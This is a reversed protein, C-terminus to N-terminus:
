GIEGFFPCVCKFHIYISYYLLSIFSCLSCFSDFVSSVTGWNESPFLTSSFDKLSNFPSVLCVKMSSPLLVTTYLTTLSINWYKTYVLTKTQLKLGILLTHASFETTLSSDSVAETHFPQDTPACFPAPCGVVFVVPASYILSLLCHKGAVKKCFCVASQSGNSFVTLKIM